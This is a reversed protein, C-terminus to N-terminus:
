LDGKSNARGCNCNFCELCFDEKLSEPWGQRRFDVLLRIGRGEGNRRRETNKIYSEARQLKKKAKKEEENLKQRVM